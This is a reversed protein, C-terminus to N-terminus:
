KFCLSIKFNDCQAKAGGAEFSNLRKHNYLKDVLKEFEAISARKDNVMNQPSLAACGRM